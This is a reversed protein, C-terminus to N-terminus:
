LDTLVDFLLDLTIFADEFVHIYLRHNSVEGGKAPGLVVSGSRKLM